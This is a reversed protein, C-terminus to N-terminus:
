LAALIWRGSEARLVYISGRSLAINFDNAGTGVVAKLDGDADDIPVTLVQHARLEIRQPIGKVYLQFSLAQDSGNFFGLNNAAVVPDTLTRRQPVAPQISPNFPNPVLSPTSGLRETLGPVSQVLTNNAGVGSTFHPPATIIPMVANPVRMGLNEISGGLSNQMGLVLGAGATSLAISLQWRNM